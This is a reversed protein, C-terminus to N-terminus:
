LADKSRAICYRLIPSVFLRVLRWFTEGAIANAILLISILPGQRQGVGLFRGVGSPTAEALTTAADMRWVFEKGVTADPWTEEDFLSLLIPYSLFIGSLGLARGDHSGEVARVYIRLLSKSPQEKLVYVLLAKSERLLRRRRDDGAPHMGAKLPRLSLGLHGLDARTNMVPLYFLSRLRDLGFRTRRTEGLLAIFLNIFVVPVPVFFRRCRLRTKAIEALFDSFSIPVPSALYYVGSKTGGREAIRLLGEVLDDVHIPQIKPAPLFAPLLPMKRVIRVLTGYLGHLEGGYVQGPRVVCGGVALVAQEIRWKIRGYPTPADVRATQSSVFLLESGSKQTAEILRQAAFVEGEEHLGHSASTNAALHVVVDTGSPLVIVESSVLDLHLWSSRSLVKQQRCAIVVDHGRDIALSTLRKGIYGTAGTIVMRM